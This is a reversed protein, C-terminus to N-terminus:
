DTRQVETKTEPEGDDEEKAVKGRRTGGAKAEKRGKREDRPEKFVEARRPFSESTGDASERARFARSARLMAKDIEKLDAEVQEYNELPDLDREYKARVGDEITEIQDLYKFVMAWM